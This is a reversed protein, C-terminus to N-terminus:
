KKKLIDIIQYDELHRHEEPVFEIETKYMKALRDITTKFERMIYNYLEENLTVRLQRRERRLTELHSIIDYKLKHWLETKSLVLGSGKCYPCDSFCIEKLSRRTRKRTLQLLGFETLSSIKTTARDQRLLQRFRQELKQRDEEEEMDIFDIVIIGGIDRLRLQHAIAEAAELNTRLITERLHKDAVYGGSNVDIATLASLEDIIVYGGSKLRVVRRLAQQIQKELNYRELIKLINTEMVVREVLAPLYLKLAQRLNKYEPVSNIYITKIDENFIDRVLRFIIDHENYLLTPAQKNCAKRWIAAWRQRLISVDSLIEEPQRQLAATRVIFGALEKRIPQIIQKLRQREEREKIKRSVGGGNKSFPLMVLYRGPLSIEATLRPPKNAVADRKVQVLLELGPKLLEAPPLEVTKGEVKLQRRRLLRSLFGTKKRSEPLTISDPVDSFHLFANKELGIDVFAAELGAVVEMVRGKYINGVLSRDDLNEIYLEVLKENELVAVRIQKEEVDIIVIREM